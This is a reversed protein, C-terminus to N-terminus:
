RIIFPGPISDIEICRARLDTRIRENQFFPKIDIFYAQSQSDLHDLESPWYNRLNLSPM